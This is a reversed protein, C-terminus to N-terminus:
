LTTTAEAEGGEDDETVAVAHDADAVALGLFNGGSDRLADFFGLLGEEANGADAAGDRVANLTFGGCADDHQTRSGGTGTNDGTARDTCYQLAHADVVDEGLRETRGVGDVDNVRGNVRQLAEFLRCCHCCAAAEREVLDGRRCHDLREQVLLCTDSDHSLVHKDGVCLQLDSLDLGGNAALLVLAVGQPGEAQLPDSVGNDAGGVGHGHSHEVRNRVQYLYLLRLLHCLLFGSLGCSSVLLARQLNVVQTGGRTGLGGLGPNTTTFTGLTLGSTATGLTRLGAVLDLSAKGAALQRQVHAQRLQAAELVREPNLVLNYVQVLEVLQERFTASDGHLVQDFLTGNALVLGDLHQAGAVDVDLNVDGDVCERGASSVLNSCCATAGGGELSAAPCNGTTSVGPVLPEPGRHRSNKENEPGRRNNAPRM